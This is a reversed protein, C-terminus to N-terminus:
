RVRSSSARQRSRSGIRWSAPWRLRRPMRASDASSSATARALASMASIPDVTNSGSGPPLGPWRRTLDVSHGSGAKTSTPIRPSRVSNAPASVASGAPAVWWISKM